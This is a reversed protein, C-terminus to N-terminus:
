ADMRALADQRSLNGRLTSIRGETKSRSRSAASGAYGAGRAGASWVASEVLLRVTHGEPFSEGLRDLRALHDELDSRDKEKLRRELGALLDRAREAARIEEVLRERRENVTGVELDTIVVPPEVGAPVAGRQCELAAYRPRAPDQM